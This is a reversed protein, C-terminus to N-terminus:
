PNWVRRDHADGYSRIRGSSQGRIYVYLRWGCQHYAGGTDASAQIATAGSAATATRVTYATYQTQGQPITAAIFSMSITGPTDVGLRDLPSGTPDTV